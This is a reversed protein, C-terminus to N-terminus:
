YAATKLNDEIEKLEDRCAKLGDIMEPSVWEECETQISLTAVYADHIARKVDRGNRCAGFAGYEDGYTSEPEDYFNEVLTEGTFAIWFTGYVNAISGPVPDEYVVYATFGGDYTKSLVLVSAGEDLDVVKPLAEKAVEKYGKEQFLDKSKTNASVPAAAESIIRKYASDFKNM